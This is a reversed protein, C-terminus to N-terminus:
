SLNIKKEVATASFYDFVEKGDSKTGIIKCM